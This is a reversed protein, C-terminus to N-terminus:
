THYVTADWLPAHISINETGTIKYGFKRRTGCPRTSQFWILWSNQCFVIHTADWLPAHISIKIAGRKWHILDTADWLPAHISILKHIRDPNPFDFDRGVPARPNFDTINLSVGQFTHRTGCPRTSQFKHFISFPTKFFHTMDWLPVHIQFIM